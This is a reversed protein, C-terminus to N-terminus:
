KACAKEWEHNIIELDTECISLAGTFNSDAAKVEGCRPGLFEVHATRHPSEYLQDGHRLYRRELSRVVGELSWYTGCINRTIKVRVLDGEEVPKPAETVGNEDPM